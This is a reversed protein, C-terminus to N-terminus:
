KFSIEEFTKFAFKKKNLNYFSHDPNNEVVMESNEFKFLRSHVENNSKLQLTSFKLNHKSCISELRPNMEKFLVGPVENFKVMSVFEIEANEAITNLNLLQRLLNDMEYEKGRIYSDQILLKNAKMGVARPFIDRIGRVEGVKFDYKRISMSELQKNRIVLEEYKNNLREIEAESEEKILSTKKEIIGTYKEKLLQKNAAVRKATEKDNKKMLSLTEQKLLENYREKLLLNDAAMRQAVESEFSNYRDEELQKREKEELVEQSILKMGSYLCIPITKRYATNQLDFVFWAGTAIWLIPGLIQLGPFKKALQYAFFRIATQGAILVIAKKVISSVLNVVLEEGLEEIMTEIIDSDNKEILHIVESIDNYNINVANLTKELEEPKTDVLEKRVLEKVLRKLKDEKSLHKNINFGFKKIIDDIMEETEIYASKGIMKRFVSAINSSAFYLTQEELLAISEERSENKAILENRKKDNFFSFNSDLQSSIYVLDENGLKDFVDKM